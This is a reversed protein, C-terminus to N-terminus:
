YQLFIFKLEVRHIDLLTRNWVTNNVNNIRNNNKLNNVNIKILNGIKYAYQM